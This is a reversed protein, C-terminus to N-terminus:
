KKIEVRSETLSGTEWLKGLDIDWDTIQLGLAGVLVVLIFILLGKMKTGFILMAVVIAILVSIISIRFKKSNRLAQFRSPESMPFYYSYLVGYM